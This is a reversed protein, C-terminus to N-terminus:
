LCTWQLIDVSDRLTIIHSDILELAEEKSM